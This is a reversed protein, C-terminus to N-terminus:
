FLEHKPRSEDAGGQVPYEKIPEEETDAPEGRLCSEFSKLDSAAETAGFGKHAAMGTDVVSGKQEKRTKIRKYAIDIAVNASKLAHEAATLSINPFLQRALVLIEPVRPDHLRDIVDQSQLDGPTINPPMAPIGAVAVIKREWHTKFEVLVSQWLDSEFLVPHALIYLRWLEGYRMNLARIQAYIGQDAEHANLPIVQSLWEDLVQVHSGASAQVRSLGTPVRVLIRPNKFLVSPKMCVAITPPAEGVVAKLNARTDPDIDGMVSGNVSAELQM